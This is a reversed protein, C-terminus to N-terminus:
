SSPSSTLPFLSLVEGGRRHVRQDAAAQPELGTEIREIRKNLEDILDLWEQRQQGLAPSLLLSRLLAKGKKTRLKAKLSVGVGLALAQLANHVKTRLQVLRHRYRLQRLM